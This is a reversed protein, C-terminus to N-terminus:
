PWLWVFIGGTILAYVLGDVAYRLLTTGTLGYWIKFPIMGWFYALFSISIATKFLIGTEADPGLSLSVCYGVLLAGVFFYAIQQLLLPGLKPVGDDFITIFAVPGDEFKQQMQPDQLDKMDVCYPISHVGKGPKASRIAESIAAENEIQRYDANHFKLATHIVASALWALFASVAAPLLLDIPTVLM